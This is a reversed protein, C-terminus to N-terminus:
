GAECAAWFHEPVEAGRDPEQPMWYRTLGDLEATRAGLRAAAEHDLAPPAM